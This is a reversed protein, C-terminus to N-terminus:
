HPQFIGSLVRGESLAPSLQGLLFSLTPALDVVHATQSYVGAHIGPGSILLPISRDYSYGTIHTSSDDKLSNM